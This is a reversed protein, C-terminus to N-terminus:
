TRARMTFAKPGSSQHITTANHLWTMNAVQAMTLDM